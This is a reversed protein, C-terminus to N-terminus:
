DARPFIAIAEVEIPAEKPLGAVQVVSRATHWEGFVDAYVENVTQYEDMQTLFVTVKLIDSLSLGQSELIAQVNQLVRRTQKAIGGTVMEGTTPDLPLQGSIFLFEGSSVAQSYPGIATPAQDTSVLKNGM